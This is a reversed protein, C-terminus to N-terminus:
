MIHFLRGPHTHIYNTLPIQHRHKSNWLVAINCVRGGITLPISVNSRSIILCDLFTAIGVSM